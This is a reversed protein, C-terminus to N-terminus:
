TGEQKSNAKKKGHNRDKRKLNIFADLSEFLTTEFDASIQLPRADNSCSLILMTAWKWDKKLGIM